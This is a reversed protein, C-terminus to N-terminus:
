LPEEFVANLAETEAKTKAKKLLKSNGRLPIADAVTNIGAFRISVPKWKKYAQEFIESPLDDPSEPFVQARDLFFDKAESVWVRKLDQIKDYLDRATPVNTYHCLVLMALAWRLTEENHTTCGVSMGREVLLVM